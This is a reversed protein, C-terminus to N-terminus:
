PSPPGMHRSGQARKRCAEGGDAIQQPHFSDIRHQADGPPLFLPHHLLPLAVPMATTPTLGSSKLSATSVILHPSSVIPHGCLPQLELGCQHGVLTEGRLRHSASLSGQSSELMLMALDPSAQCSSTPPHWAPRESGIYRAYPAHQPTSALWPAPLSEVVLM